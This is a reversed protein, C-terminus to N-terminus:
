LNDEQYSQYYTIIDELGNHVSTGYFSLPM